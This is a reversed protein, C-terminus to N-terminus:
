ILRITSILDGMAVNNFTILNEFDIEITYKEYLLNQCFIIL